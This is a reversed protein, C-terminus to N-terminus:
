GWTRVCRLANQLNNSVQTASVAEAGTEEVLLDAALGHLFVGCAAAHLAPMGKAALAGIVGALVDGMGGSAMAPSGTPNVLTEHASSIVTKAGKLVAVGFKGALRRSYHFRNAQITSVSTEFLRAMEGPHPTAVWSQERNGIREPTLASLGDGDIVMPLDIKQVIERVLEQTSPNLSLGPGIVVATYRRNGSFLADFAEKAIAGETTEAVPLTLMELVGGAYLPLLSEPCAATVLGAGMAISAKACMLAAGTMGKSGAIILLHGESGKHASQNRQPIWRDIESVSLLRAESEANMMLDVPFGIDLVVLYKYYDLGPLLVHGLKPLGMTFVWDARVAAGQANGTDAEVGSPIDVSVVTSKRARENLKVIATEILGKAPGRTGTGLLADIWISTSVAEDFFDALVNENDCIYLPIHKGEILRYNALADGSLDDPDALVAVTPTFGHDYLHRAIVFGDGGNNGKGCLIATHQLQSHSFEELMALTIKQGAQEM